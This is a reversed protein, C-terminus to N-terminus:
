SADWTKYDVGGYKRCAFECYKIAILEFVFHKLNNCKCSKSLVAFSTLLIVGLALIKNTIPKM